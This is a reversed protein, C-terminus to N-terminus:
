SLEFKGTDIGLRQIARFMRREVLNARVATSAVAGIATSQDVVRM